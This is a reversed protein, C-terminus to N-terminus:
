DKCYKNFYDTFNLEGQLYRNIEEPTFYFCKKTRLGKDNLRSYIWERYEILGRSYGLKMVSFDTSREYASRSKKGIMKIGLKILEPSTAHKYDSIHQIEHALIATLAIKSPSCHYLNKNIDLYYVRKNKFIHGLKFMTKLFYDSSEFERIQIRNEEFAPILDNFDKYIIDKVTILIESKSTTAPCYEDSNSISNKLAGSLYFDMNAFATINILFTLFFILLKM